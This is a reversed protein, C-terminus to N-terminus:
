MMIMNVLHVLSNRENGLLILKDDDWIWWVWLMIMCAYSKWKWKLQNIDDFMDGLIQNYEGLLEFMIMVYQYTILFVNLKVRELWSCDILISDVCVCKIFLSCLFKISFFILSRSLSLSFGINRPLVEHTFKWLPPTYINIFWLIKLQLSDISFLYYLRFNLNFRTFLLIHCCM